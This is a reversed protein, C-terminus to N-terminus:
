IRFKYKADLYRYLAQAVAGCDVINIKQHVNPKVNKINPHNEKTCKTNYRVNSIWATVALKKKTLLVFYGCRHLKPLQLREKELPFSHYFMQLMM